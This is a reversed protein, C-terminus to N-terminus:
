ACSAYFRRPVVRKQASSALITLQSLNYFKMSRVLRRGVMPDPSNESTNNRRRSKAAGRTPRFSENKHGTAAMIPSLFMADLFSLQQEFTSFDFTSDDSTPVFSPEEKQCFFSSQMRLLEQL